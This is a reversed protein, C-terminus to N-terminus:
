TKTGRSDMKVNRRFSQGTPTQSKQRTNEWTNCRLYLRLHALTYFQVLIYCGFACNASHGLNVVIIHTVYCNVYTRTGWRGM